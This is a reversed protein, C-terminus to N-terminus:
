SLSSNKAFLGAITLTCHTSQTDQCGVAQQETKLNHGVRQLGMSQLM